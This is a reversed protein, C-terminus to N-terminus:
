AVVFVSFIMIWSPDSVSGMTLLLTGPEELLGVLGLRRLFYLLAELAEFGEYFVFDGTVSEGYNLIISYFWAGGSVSENLDSEYNKVSLESVSEQISLFIWGGSGIYSSSSSNVGTAMRGLM